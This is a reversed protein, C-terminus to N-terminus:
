DADEFEIGDSDGTILCEEIDIVDKYVKATIKDYLDKNNKVEKIFADAGHVRIDEFTTWGGGGVIVIGHEIALTVIDRAKDVGSQGYSFQYTMGLRSSRTKEAKIRVPTYDKDKNSLRKLLFITDTDHKLARGGNIIIVPMGSPSFGIKERAQKIMIVTVDEEIMKNFFSPLHQGLTGATGAYTASYKNEDVKRALMNDLSDIVVAEIFGTSMMRDAEDFFDEIVKTRRLIVYEQDVGLSKARKADWAGEVDNWLIRKFSGTAKLNNIIAAIIQLSTLTKGSSEEGAIITMRGKTIGGAGLYDIVPLGTRIKPVTCFESIEKDGILQFSDKGFSTFLKTVEDFSLSSLDKKEKDKKAM